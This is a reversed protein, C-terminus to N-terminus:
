PHSIAIGAWYSTSTSATLKGPYLVNYRHSELRMLTRDAQSCNVYFPVLCTQKTKNERAWRRARWLVSRVTPLCRRAAHRVCLGDRGDTRQARTEPPRQPSPPSPVASCPRRRCPTPARRASTRPSHTPIVEENWDGKGLHQASGVNSKASTPLM